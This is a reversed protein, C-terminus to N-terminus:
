HFRVAEGAAAALRLGAIFRVTAPRMQDYIAREPMKPLLAELADALPGCVAAPIEGDCDSHNMLVNIPVSQDDYRGAEWAAKLAEETAGKPDNTIFLHLWQRWRMFMSYPGSWCDHSTDLGV